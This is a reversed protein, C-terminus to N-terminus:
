ITSQAVREGLPTQFISGLADQVVKGIGQDLGQKRLKKAAETYGGEANALDVLLADDKIPQGWINEALNRFPSVIDEYTLNENTYSPFLALRQRRLFEEFEVQADPNNRFRGAWREIDTESMQGMTPGLWQVALERVTDEEVRTTRMNADAVRRAIEPDLTGVAFPDALKKIQEETELESWHGTLMRVAILGIVTQPVDKLGLELMRNTVKRKMDLRQQEIEAPGLTVSTEMWTREAATHSKWWRTKALEDSTPARGELYSVAFVSLMDPDNLWPRLQRAENLDSTFKAWPDDDSQALDSALGANWPSLKTFEEQSMTKDYTPTETGYWAVLDSKDEVLWVLRLDTGREASGPVSYSLWVADGVKWLEPRGPIQNPDGMVSM